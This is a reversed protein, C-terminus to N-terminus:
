MKKWELILKEIKMVKPVLIRTAKLGGYSADVRKNLIDLTKKLKSAKISTENGV